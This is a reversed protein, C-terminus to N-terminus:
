VSLGIIDFMAAILYNAFNLFLAFFVSFVLVTVTYSVLQKASPWRVKKGQTYVGKFYDGIRKLFSMFKVEENQKFM